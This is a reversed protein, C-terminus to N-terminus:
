EVVITILKQNHYKQPKIPIRINLQEFEVCIAHYM